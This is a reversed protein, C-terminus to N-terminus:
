KRISVATESMTFLPISSEIPLRTVTNMSHPPLPISPPITLQNILESIQIILQIILQSFVSQMHFFIHYVIELQSCLRTNHASLLTSQFILSKEITIQTKFGCINCTSLFSHNDFHFM